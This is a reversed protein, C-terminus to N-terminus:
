AQGNSSNLPSTASVRALGPPPFACVALASVTWSATTGTEDELANVTVSQLDASPRVDDILVDGNGPNV